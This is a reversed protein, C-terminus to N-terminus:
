LNKNDVSGGKLPDFKEPPKPVPIENSSEIPKDNESVLANDFFENLKVKTEAIQQETKQKREIAELPDLVTQGSDVMEQDTPLPNFKEVSGESKNISQGNELAGDLPNFKKPNENMYSFLVNIGTNIDICSQM